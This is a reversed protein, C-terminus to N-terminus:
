ALLEAVDAPIQWDQANPNRPLVHELNVEDVDQNPVLEPQAENRKARELARLYYRALWSRRVNAVAFAQQFALDGSGRNRVRQSCGTAAPPSGETVKKASEAYLRETTGTSGGGAM